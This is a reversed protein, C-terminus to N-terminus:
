QKSGLHGQDSNHQAELDLSLSIVLRPFEMGAMVLVAGPNGVHVWHVGMRGERRARVIKMHPTHETMQSGQVKEQALVEGAILYDKQDITSSDTEVEAEAVEERRTMRKGESSRRVAPSTHVRSKRDVAKDVVVEVLLPPFSSQATADVYIQANRTIKDKSKMEKGSSVQLSKASQIRLRFRAFPSIDLIFDHIKNVIGTITFNYVHRRL